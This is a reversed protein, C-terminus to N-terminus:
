DRALAARLQQELHQYADDRVLESSPQARDIPVFSDPRVVRDHAV